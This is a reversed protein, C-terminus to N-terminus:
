SEVEELTIGALFRLERIGHLYLHFPLSERQDANEHVTEGDFVIRTPAIQVALDGGGLVTQMKAALEDRRRALIPNNRPYTKYDRLARLFTAWLDRVPEVRSPADVAPQPSRGSEM